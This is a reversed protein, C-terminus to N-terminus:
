YDYFPKGQHEHENMLTDSTLKKPKDKCVLNVQNQREREGINETMHYHQMGDSVIYKMPVPVIVQSSNNRTRSRSGNM